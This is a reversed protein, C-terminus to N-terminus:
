KKVNLLLLVFFPFSTLESSKISESVGWQSTVKLGDPCAWSPTRMMTSFLARLSASFKFVNLCVFSSLLSLSMTSFSLSWTRGTLTGAVTIDHRDCLQAILPLLLLSFCPMVLHVSADDVVHRHLLCCSSPLM